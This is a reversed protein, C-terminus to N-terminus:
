QVAARTCSIMYRASLTGYIHVEWVVDYLVRDIRVQGHEFEIEIKM